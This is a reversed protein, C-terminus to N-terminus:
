SVNNKWSIGMQLLFKKSGIFHNKQFVNLVKLTLM